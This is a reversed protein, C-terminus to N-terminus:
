YTLELKIKNAKLPEQNAMKNVTNIIQLKIRNLRKKQSPNNRHRSLLKDQAKSYDGRRIPKLM